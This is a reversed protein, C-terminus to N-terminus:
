TKVTEVLVVGPLTRQSPRSSAVVAIAARASAAMATRAPSINKLILSLDDVREPRVGATGREDDAEGKGHDVDQGVGQDREM